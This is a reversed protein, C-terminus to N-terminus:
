SALLDLLSPRRPRPLLFSTASPLVYETLPLRVAIRTQVPLCSKVLPAPCPLCPSSWALWQPSRPLWGATGRVSYTGLHHADSSHYADARGEDRKRGPNSACSQGNRLGSRPLMVMRNETIMPLHIVPAPGGVPTSDRGWRSGGTM